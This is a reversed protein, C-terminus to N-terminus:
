QSLPYWHWESQGKIEGKTRRNLMGDFGVVTGLTSTFINDFVAGIVFAVLLVVAVM